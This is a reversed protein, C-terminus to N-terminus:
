QIDYACTEVAACDISVKAVFQCRGFDDGEIGFKDGLVSIPRLQAQHLNARGLAQRDDVRLGGSVQRPEPFHQGAVTMLRHHM